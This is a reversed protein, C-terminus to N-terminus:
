HPLRRLQKLWGRIHGTLRERDTDVMVDHGPGGLLQATTPAPAPPLKPPLSAGM